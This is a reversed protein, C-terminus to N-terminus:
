NYKNKKENRGFDWELNSRILRSKIQVSKKQRKIQNIEGSMGLGGVRGCCNVIWNPNIKIIHSRHKSKIEEM